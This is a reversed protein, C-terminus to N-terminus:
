PPKLWRELKDPEVPQAKFKRISRRKQILSLFM